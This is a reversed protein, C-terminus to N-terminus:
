KLSPKQECHQGVTMPESEELQATTRTHRARNHASSEMPMPALHCVYRTIYPEGIKSALFNVAEKESSIGGLKMMAM